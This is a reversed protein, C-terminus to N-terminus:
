QASSPPTEPKLQPLIADLRDAIVRQGADTPHTSDEQVLNPTSLWNEGIADIFTMGLDTAAKRVANNVALVQPTPKNNDWIPGVVVIESDPLRAQLNNLVTTAEKTVLAPDANRDNRSGAVIVIEPSDVVAADIKDAFARHKEAGNVYGGGGGAANTLDWGRKEALLDPWLVTNKPTGKSVSDGIVGLNIVTDVPATPQPFSYTTAARDSTSDGQSGDYVVAVALLGVIAALIAGGIVLNRNRQRRFESRM